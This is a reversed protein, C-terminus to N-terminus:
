FVRLWYGVNTLSFHTIHVNWVDLPPWYNNGIGLLRGKGSTYGPPHNPHEFVGKAVILMCLTRSCSCLGWLNKRGGHGACEGARVWIFHLLQSRPLAPTTQVSLHVSFGNCSTNGRMQMDVHTARLCVRNTLGLFAM